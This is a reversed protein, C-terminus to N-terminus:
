SVEQETPIGTRVNAMVLMQYYVFKGNICINKHIACIFKKEHGLVQQKFCKMKFAKQLIKNNRILFYHVIKDVLSYCKDCVQFRM